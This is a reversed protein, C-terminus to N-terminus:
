FAAAIPAAVGMVKKFNNWFGGYQNEQAQKQLNNQAMNQGIQALGGAGALKGQQTMGAINAETNTTANGVAQTGERGIRALGAGFGPAYGGSLARQRNMDGTLNQYIGKIPNVARARISQLDQPSFGGTDAFQSYTKTAKYEPSQLQARIQDTLMNTQLKVYTPANHAGEPGADVGFQDKAIKNWLQDYTLNEYQGLNANDFAM